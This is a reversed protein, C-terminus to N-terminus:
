LTQYQRYTKTAQITYYVQVYGNKPHDTATLGWCPAHGAAKRVLSSPHLFEEYIVLYNRIVMLDGVLAGQM